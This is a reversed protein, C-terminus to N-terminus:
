LLDYRTKIIELLVWQAYYNLDGVSISIEFSVQWEKM